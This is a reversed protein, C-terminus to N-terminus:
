DPAVVAQADRVAACGEFLGLAFGGFFGLCFLSRVFWM